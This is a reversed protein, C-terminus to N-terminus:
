VGLERFLLDMLRLLTGRARSSRFRNRTGNEKEAQPRAHESTHSKPSDYIGVIRVDYGAVFSGRESDHSWIWEVEEDPGIEVSLVQGGPM